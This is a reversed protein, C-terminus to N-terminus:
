KKSGVITGHEDRVTKCITCRYYQAEGKDRLLANHVRLMPGYRRDQYEHKCTCKLIM